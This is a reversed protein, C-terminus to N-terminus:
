FGCKQLNASWLSVFGPVALQCINFFLVETLATIRLPSRVERFDPRMLNVCDRLILLCSLVAVLITIVHGLAYIFHLYHKTLAQFLRRRFSRPPRLSRRIPVTPLLLIGVPVSSALVATTLGTALLAVSGCGRMGVIVNTRQCRNGKFCTLPKQLRLLRSCVENFCTLFVFIFSLFIWSQQLVIIFEFLM